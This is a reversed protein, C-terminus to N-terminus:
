RSNRAGSLGLCKKRAVLNEEGKMRRLVPPRITLRKGHDKRIAGDHL